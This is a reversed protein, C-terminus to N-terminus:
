TTKLTPDDTESNEQDPTDTTAVKEEVQELGYNENLVGSVNPTYDKPPHNHPASDELSSEELKGSGAAILKSSIDSNTLTMASAALHQHVEKYSQTLNNVLESTKIFHETVNQQYRQLENNKQKLDESLTRLQKNKGSLLRSLTSGIILGIILSLLAIALPDTPV